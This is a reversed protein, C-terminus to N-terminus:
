QRKGNPEVETVQACAWRFERDVVEGIVNAGLGYAVFSGSDKQLGTAALVVEAFNLGEAAGWCPGACRVIRERRLENLDRMGEELRKESADDVVGISSFPGRRLYIVQAQDHGTAMEVVRNLIQLSDLDQEKPVSVKRVARDRGKARDQEIRERENVVLVVVKLNMYLYYEDESM